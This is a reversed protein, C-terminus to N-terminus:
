KSKVSTQVILKIEQKPLFEYGSIRCEYTGSDTTQPPTFTLVAETSNVPFGFERFSKRLGNRYSVTVRSNSSILTNNKYWKLATDEPIFGAMDCSLEVSTINDLVTM